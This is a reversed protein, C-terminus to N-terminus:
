PFASRALCIILELPYIEM